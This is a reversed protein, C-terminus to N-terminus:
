RGRRASRTSCTGFSARGPSTTSVRPAPSRVVTGSSHSASPPHVRHVRALRDRGFQLACEGARHLAIHRERGEGGVVQTPRDRREHAGTRDVRQGGDCPDHTLVRRGQEDDSASRVQEDGVAPEGPERDHEDTVEFADVEVGPRADDLARRRPAAGPARGASRPRPGRAAELEEDPDGATDAARHPHVGAPVTAVRGLHEHAARTTSRAPM